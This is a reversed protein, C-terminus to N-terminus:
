ATAAPCPLPPSPSTAARMELDFFIALCCSLCIKKIDRKPRDTYAKRLAAGMLRLSAAVTPMRSRIYLCLCCHNLLPYPFAMPFRFSPFTFFRLSFRLSIPIPPYLSPSLVSFSYVLFIPPLLSEFALSFPYTLPTLALPLCFPSIFPYLQNDLALFHFQFM